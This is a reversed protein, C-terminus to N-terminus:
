VLSNAAAPSSRVFRVLLWIWWATWLTFVVGLMVDRALGFGLVNVVVGIAAAARACGVGRCGPRVERDPALGAVLRLM